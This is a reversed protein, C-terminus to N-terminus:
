VESRKVRKILDNVAPSRTPNGTHTDVNYRLHRNPIFHSIAKKHFHLTSSRCFTPLQNAGPTPSGYAKFRLYFCVDDATISNLEHNDFEYEHHYATGTRFQMFTTLVKKYSRVDDTMHSQDVIFIIVNNTAVANNQNFTCRPPSRKLNRAPVKHYQHYWGM